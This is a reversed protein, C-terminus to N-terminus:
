MESFKNLIILFLVILIFLLSDKIFIHISPFITNLAGFLNGEHIVNVNV